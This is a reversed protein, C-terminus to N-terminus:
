AWTASIRATALSTDPGDILMALADLIKRRPL